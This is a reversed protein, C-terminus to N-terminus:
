VAHILYNVDCRDGSVAGTVLFSDWGLSCGALSSGQVDAGRLTLQIEYEIALGTFMTLLSRLARAGRGDPLLADFSARDLPGIELRIRLDRQWVRTGSMAGEGLMANAGGLMTQQSAPVDYWCGIFQLARVPQGFYDSLVQAIQVASAPRQRLAAAFCALSEDPVGGCAESHLRQRLSANGLGALSLLLPLFEDKGDLQYQWELRYKRWAEYFLMLSRSSFSDLFARAGDDKEVLMHAAIRDTYHLPLAGSGGLLGMFAPTVRIYRLTHAQMAAALAPGDRALGPPDTQVDELASAAFALSTSNRFRLFDALLHQRAGGHRKRWLDLMRVAQFFDFRYPEAFLREIVAPEFRRKKAQM